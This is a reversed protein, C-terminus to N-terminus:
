NTKNKSIEYISEIKSKAEEVSFCLLYIASNNKKNEIHRSGQFVCRKQM